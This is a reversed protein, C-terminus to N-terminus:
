EAWEGGDLHYVNVTTYEDAQALCANKIATNDTYIKYSVLMQKTIAGSTGTGAAGKSVIKDIDFLPTDEETFFLRISLNHGGYSSVQTTGVMGTSLQNFVNDGLYMLNPGLYIEPFFNDSFGAFSWSGLSTVHRLDLASTELSECGAFMGAFAEEDVISPVNIIPPASFSTHRFMAEYGGLPVQPCTLAPGEILLNEGDFLGAFGPAVFQPHQGNIVSQYDLLVEIDGRCRVPCEPKSSRVLINFVSSSSTITTYRADKNITHQAVGVFTNGTGRLFLCYEGGNFAADVIKTASNEWTFWNYTDFSYEILGDWNPGKNNSNLWNRIAFPAPGSFTLYPLTEGGGYAFVHDYKISDTNCKLM